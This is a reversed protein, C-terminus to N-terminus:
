EGGKLQELEVKLDTIRELILDSVGASRLSDAAGELEDIRERVLLAQLRRKAELNAQTGLCDPEGCNDHEYCYGYGNVGLIEDISDDM